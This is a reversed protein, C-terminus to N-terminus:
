KHQSHLTIPLRLPIQKTESVRRAEPTEPWPSEVPRDFPDIYVTDFPVRHRSHIHPGAQLTVSNPNPTPKAQLQPPDVPDRDGDICSVTAITVSTNSGDTVSHFIIHDYDAITIIYTSSLTDVLLIRRM